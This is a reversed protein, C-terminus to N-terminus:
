NARRQEGPLSEEKAHERVEQMVKKKMWKRDDEEEDRSKNM